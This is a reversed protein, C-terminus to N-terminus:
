NVNVGFCLACWLPAGKPARCASHVTYPDSSATSRGVDCAGTCVFIRMCNSIGGLYYINFFYTWMPVYPLLSATIRHGISANAPLRHVANIDFVNRAETHLSLKRPPRANSGGTSSAPAAVVSKISTITARRVAAAAVTASHVEAEAMVALASVNKKSWCRKLKATVRRRVIDMLAM